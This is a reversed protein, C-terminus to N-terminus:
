YKFGNRRFTINNASMKNVEHYSVAFLGVVYVIWILFYEGSETMVLSDYIAHLISPVFIALIMYIVEGFYDKKIERKKAKSFFYGMIVGFCAHGPVATFMRMIATSIGGEFSYLLNEFCAFGLSTDVSYVVIDYTQDFEKNNYGLFLVIAYKCLEEVIGVGLLVNIFLGYYGNNMFVTSDDPLVTEMYREIFYAPITSLIGLVFFKRLVYEPERNSDRSNVYNCLQVVPIIALWILYRFYSIIM